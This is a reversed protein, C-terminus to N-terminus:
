NNTPAFVPSGRSFVGDVRLCFKAQRVHGSIPEFGCGHSSSPNLSSCILLRLWEIVPAPSMHNLLTLLLEEIYFFNKELFM